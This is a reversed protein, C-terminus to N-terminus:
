HVDHINPLVQAPDLPLAYSEETSHSANLDVIPQPDVLIVIWSQAVLLGINLKYLVM